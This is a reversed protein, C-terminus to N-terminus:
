EKRRKAIAYAAGLTILLAAGGGVPVAPQDGPLGHDPVIPYVDGDRNMFGYSNQSYIGREFLGYEQAFTTLGLGLIIATTLVLKKM